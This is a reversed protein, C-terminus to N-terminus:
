FEIIAKALRRSMLQAMSIQVMAEHSEVTRQYDKSLRRYKGLWAFTQEVIWRKPLVVFGKVGVPRLVTQVTWNLTLKVWDPLGNRRYASDGFVVKHRKRGSVKKGADYGRNEGGM